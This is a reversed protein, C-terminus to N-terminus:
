VYYKNKHEQLINCVIVNLGTYILGRTLVNLQCISAHAAGKRFWEMLVPVTVCNIMFWADHLVWAFATFCLPHHKVQM